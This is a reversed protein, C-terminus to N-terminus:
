WLGGEEIGMTEKGHVANFQAPVDDREETSEM